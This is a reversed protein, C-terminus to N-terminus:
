NARDLFHQILIMGYWFFNLAGQIGIPISISWVICSDRRWCALISIVTYAASLVILGLMLPISSIRGEALEAFDETSLLSALIFTFLWLAIGRLVKKWNDVEDDLMLYGYITTGFVLSIYALLTHDTNFLGGKILYGLFEGLAELIRREM